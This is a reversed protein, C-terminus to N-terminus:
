ITYLSINNKFWQVTQRLGDRLNTKPKWGLQKEALTIDAVWRNTDFSRAMKKNWLPQVDVNIIAKTISFIEKITVQKGGGINFVKGAYPKQAAKFYANIVDDVFVFDRATDPPALQPSKDRLLSTIVNPILRGLPEYFGYVSFPRLTIIPTKQDSALYQGYLTAWAKSAGYASLPNLIDSERMPKSKLGYESSSGTNVFADFGYKLCGRLLNFTSIINTEIIEKEDYQESPYAGHTALHFITKPKIERVLRDTARQNRLDVVHVAMNVKKLLDNIRWTKSNKRLLVHIKKPPTEQILRRLLNSGVFGSGGTILIPTRLSM